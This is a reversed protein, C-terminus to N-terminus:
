KESPNKKNSVIKELAAMVRMTRTESRKAEIIWVVYEKKNTFSLTGFFAKAEPNKSLVKALDKPPNVIRRVRDVVLTGDADRIEESPRDRRENKLDPAHKFRIGTWTADISASSVPQWPSGACVTWGGGARELDSPIGSRKKPYAIWFVAEEKLAPIIQKWWSELETSNTAFVLVFDFCDKAEAPISAVPKFAKFEGIIGKPSNIVAAAGPKPKLKQILTM